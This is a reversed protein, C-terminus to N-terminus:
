ALGREELTTELLSKFEERSIRGKKDGGDIQNLHKGTTAGWANESVVLKGNTRFAIPTEYSFYIDVKGLELEYFNSALNRLRM